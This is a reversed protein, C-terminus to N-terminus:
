INYEGTSPVANCLSEAYYDCDNETFEFKTHSGVPRVMPYPTIVNDQTGTQVYWKGSDGRAFRLKTSAINMGLAITIKTCLTDSAQGNTRTLAAAFAPANIRYVSPQALSQTLTNM